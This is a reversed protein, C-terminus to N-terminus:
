LVIAMAEMASLADLVANVDLLNNDLVEVSSGNNLNFVWLTITYPDDASSWYEINCTYAVNLGKTNLYYNTYTLTESIIQLTSTVGEIEYSSKPEIWDFEIMIMDLRVVVGM